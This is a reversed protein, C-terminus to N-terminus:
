VRKASLKRFKHRNNNPYGYRAGGLVPKPSSNRLGIAPSM